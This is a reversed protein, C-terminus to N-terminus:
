MHSPECETGVPQPYYYPDKEMPTNSETNKCIWRVINSGSKFELVPCMAQIPPNELFDCITNGYLLTNLVIM